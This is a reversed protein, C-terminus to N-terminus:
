ACRLAIHDNICGFGLICDAPEVAMDLRMYNWLIQLDERTQINM